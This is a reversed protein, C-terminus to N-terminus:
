RASVIRRHAACWPFGPEPCFGGDEDGVEGCFFRCTTFGELDAFKIRREPPVDPLAVVPRPTPAVKPEPPGFQFAKTARTRVTAHVRRAKLKMRHAKAIVGNKTALPGLQAAIDAAPMATDWMRELEACAQDNWDFENERRDRKYYRVGKDNIALNGSM